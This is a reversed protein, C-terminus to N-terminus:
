ANLRAYVGHLRHYLRRYEAYMPAYVKRTQPDPDFTADVRVRAAAGALDINGLSMSAFLAAGRLNAYMPEVVREIRRNLIDAHIQCWLDSIAGGGLIRLVPMPRRVFREVSDLLWRANFAVGELVARVLHSRDTTMSINLFAARLTRDDVPSREGNLWPTFLVGGSGAPASSALVTLRKYRADSSADPENSSDISDRMWQLCVGATEHNNAVLYLGADIGPVSAIQHFVDTRKFPVACGIWASTSITIHGAYPAVAGSGIYGTHLDPLGAVVPIKQPLGLESAVATQLGGLVSGTPLLEPLKAAERGSRRVLAPAYGIDTRGPRNDTLWSLIMSAPTAARRGTFRMGLYDLPELFTEVSSYLVPERSSLYLHHGLPDAGGPSPAGGTLRLWRVLNGPSYGVVNIPGGLRRAALARGRTDSWLLCPGVAEGDAGVPVTSGWQGTIGVGIADGAVVGNGLIEAIGQRIGDWWAHPDQVAGGDDSYTTAVARHAVAILEGSLTVAGTKPGGTGLDVALIWPEAM